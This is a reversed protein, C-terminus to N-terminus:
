PTGAGGKEADQVDGGVGEGVAAVEEVGLGGGAVRFEEEVLAGVDDVDAALRGAGARIRNRVLLLKAPDDRDYPLDQFDAGPGQDGDVGVAGPGGLGGEIGPGADDVVDGRQAAVRAHGREDGFSAAGDDKHV